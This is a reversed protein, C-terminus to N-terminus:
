SCQRTTPSCPTPSPGDALSYVSLSGALLLSAILVRIVKKVDPEKEQAIQVAHNDVGPLGVPTAARRGDSNPFRLPFCKSAGTVGPQPVPRLKRKPPITPFACSKPFRLSIPKGLASRALRASGGGSWVGVFNPELSTPVLTQESGRFKGAYAAVAPADSVQQPTGAFPFQFGPGPQYFAIAACGTRM